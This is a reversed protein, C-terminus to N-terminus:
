DDWSFATFQVTFFGGAVTAIAGGVFSLDDGQQGFMTSEEHLQYPIFPSGAAQYTGGIGSLYITPDDHRYILFTVNIDVGVPYNALLLGIWIESIITAGPGYYIPGVNISTGGAGHGYPNVANDHPLIPYSGRARGYPMGPMVVDVLGMNTLQAGVEAPFFVLDLDAGDLIADVGDSVAMLAIDFQWGADVQWSYTFVQDGNWGPSVGQTQPDPQGAIWGSDLSGGIASAGTAVRLQQLEVQESIEFGIRVLLTGAVPGSIKQGNGDLSFYNARNASGNVEIWPEYDLGIIGFEGNPMAQGGVSMKYGIMAVDFVTAVTGDAGAPGQPGQPGDTGDALSGRLDATQPDDTLAVVLDAGDPRAM